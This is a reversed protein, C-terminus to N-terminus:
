RLSLRVPFSWVLLPRRLAWLLLWALWVISIAGGGGGGSDGSRGSGGSDDSDSDAPTEIVVAASEAGENGSGDFASVTYAYSTSARLGSDRYSTTTSTAIEIDDRRIRYGTVATDDTSENWSLDIATSSIAVASLSGPVDPPEVDPAPLTTASAEASQASENGTEDFAGLQYSYLTEADLGRDVYSADTVTAIEVGDRYVRYGTVGVNDTAENWSLTIEAESDATAVVNEPASPAETDIPTTVFVPFDDVSVSTSIQLPTGATNTATLINDENLGARIASLPVAQVSAPYTWVVLCSQEADSFEYIRVDGALDRREQFSKGEICSVMTAYASYSPKPFGWFDILGFHDEVDTTSPDRDVYNYWFIKDIGKALSITHSKVLYAANEERSQGRVPNEGSLMQEVQADNQPAGIETFWMPFDVGRGEMAARREDIFDELWEEPTPFDPWAYPHPALIDFESAAESALFEEVDTLSQGALQFLFRLNPNVGNAAERIAAAKAKLNAFYSPEEFRSSLNEERGLEWHETLPDAEFFPRIKDQLATLFEDPVTATDDTVWGDGSVLPLEQFGIDRRQTIELSWQASSTTNWTLTKIWTSLYPDDLDAHVIGFPSDLNLARDLIAKPPLVAFGIERRSGSAENFMVNPDDPLLALGYYGVAPTDSPSTITTLVGDSFSVVPGLPNGRFDRWQYALDAPATGVTVTALIDFSFPEGPPFVHFPTADQVEIEVTQAIAESVVMMAWAFLVIAKIVTTHAIRGADGLDIHDTRTM